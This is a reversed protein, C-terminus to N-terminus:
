RMLHFVDKAEITVEFPEGTAQISPNGKIGIGAERCHSSRDIDLVLRTIAIFCRSDEKPDFRGLGGIAGLGLHRLWM